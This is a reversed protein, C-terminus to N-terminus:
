LITYSMIKALSEFAGSNKLSNLLSINLTYDSIPLRLSYNELSTELEQVCHYGPMLDSEYKILSEKDEVDLGNRGVLKQHARKRVEELGMFHFDILTLATEFPAGGQLTRGWHFGIDLSKVTERWFFTKNIQNIQFYGAHFPNATLVKVIKLPGGFNPLSALYAHIAESSVEFQENLEVALLEDADLPIYFDFDDFADLELMKLVMVTGKQFFNERSDFRREVKCGMTEASVLIETTLRDTSGNDFIFIQQPPVIMTHHKIWADLMHGENKCMMFLALKPYKSDSNQFKTSKKYPRKELEGFELYHKEADVGAADVDPNLNLYKQPDFDSPLKKM